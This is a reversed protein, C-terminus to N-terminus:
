ELGNLLDDLRNELTDPKSDADKTDGIGMAEIATDTDDKKPDTAAPSDNATAAKDPEATTETKVPVKADAAEMKKEPGGGIFFVIVTLGVLLAISSFAATITSGLLSSSAAEGMVEKPSRPHLSDVM